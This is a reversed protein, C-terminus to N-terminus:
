GVVRQSNRALLIWPHRGGDARWGTVRMYYEVTGRSRDLVRQVDCGAVPRVSETVDILQGADAQSAYDYVVRELVDFAADRQAGTPSLIATNSTPHEM